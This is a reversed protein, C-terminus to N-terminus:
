KKAGRRQQQLKLMLDGARANGYNHYASHLEKHAAIHHGQAAKIKGSLYLAEGLVAREKNSDAQNILRELFSLAAQPDGSQECTGAQQLLFRSTETPKSTNVVPASVSPLHAGSKAQGVRELDSLLEVASHYRDSPHYSLCKNLILGLDPLEFRLEDNVRTADLISKERAKKHEEVLKENSESSESQKVNHFLRVGTLMEYLILGISYVDSAPSCIGSLSEPAQCALDGAGAALGTISGVAQALGFDSVKVVGSGDILVNAPKLDRHLVPPNMGHALSMAWCIQKTYDLALRIPLVRHGDRSTMNSSKLSSMEKELDGSMCAMVVYGRNGWPECIGADYVPVIHKLFDNDKYVQTFKVVALVDRFSEFVEERKLDTQKLLKFAVERIPHGLIEHEARYVFGFNGRGLVRRIMYRNDILNGQLSEPLGDRECRKDLSKM